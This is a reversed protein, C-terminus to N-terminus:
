GDSIVPSPTKKKSVERWRLYTPWDVAVAVINHAMQQNTLVHAAAIEPWDVVYNTQLLTRATNEIEEQTAERPSEGDALMEEAFPATLDWLHSYASLPQGNVPKGAEDIDIYCPLNTRLVGASEDFLRVTPVIWSNGDALRLSYGSLQQTRALDVPEPVADKWYGIYLEPHKAAPMKRWVQADMDMKIGGDAHRRPDAFVVGAGGTPTNAMCACSLPEREFAYGLGWAAAEALTVNRTTHPKFYLFGAM